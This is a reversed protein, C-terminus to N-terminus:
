PCKEKKKMKTGAEYHNLKNTFVFIKRDMQKFYSKLVDQQVHAISSVAVLCM